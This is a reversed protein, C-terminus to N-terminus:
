LSPPCTAASSNHDLGAEQASKRHPKMSSESQNKFHNKMKQQKNVPGVEGRLVPKQAMHSQILELEGVTLERGTKTKWSIGM